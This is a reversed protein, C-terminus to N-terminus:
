VLSQSDPTIEDHDDKLDTQPSHAKESLKSAAISSSAQDDKSAPETTFTVLKVKSAEDDNHNIVNLNKNNKIVLHKLYRRDPDFLM